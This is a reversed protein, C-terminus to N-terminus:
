INSVFAESKILKKGEGIDLGATYMKKTVVLNFRKFTEEWFATLAVTELKM